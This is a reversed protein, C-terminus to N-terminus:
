SVPRSPVQAGNPARRARWTAFLGGALTLAGTALLARVLFELISAVWGPRSTLYAGRTASRWVRFATRHIQHTDEVAPSEVLRRINDASVDTLSYSWTGAELPEGRTLGYSRELQARSAADVSVAWRINVDAPRQGYTLRLTGFAAGALAWLIVTMVVLRRGQPKM